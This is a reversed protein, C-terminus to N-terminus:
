KPSEELKYVIMKVQIIQDKSITNSTANAHELNNRLQRFQHLIQAQNITIHQDKELTKIMDILDGKLLFKSKCLYTLKVYLNTIASLFDGSNIKNEVLKETIAKPNGFANKEEVFLNHLQTYCSDLKILSDYLIEDISSLFDLDKVQKHYKQYLVIFGDRNVVEKSSYPHEISAGTHENLAAILDNTSMLLAALKSKSQYKSLLSPLIEKFYVFLDQYGFDLSELTDFLDVQNNSRITPSNMIIDLLVINSLKNVKIVWNSIVLRSALNNIDSTMLYTKMCEFGIKKIYEIIIPEGSSLERIKGLQVINSELDRGLWSHIKDNVVELCNGFKCLSILKKFSYEANDNFEIFSFNDILSRIVHDILPKQIKRELLLTIRIEGFIPNNAIVNAPIFVSATESAYIKLFISNPSLENLLKSSTFCMTYNTTNITGNLVDIVSKQATKIKIDEPIHIGDIPLESSMSTYHRTEFPFKFKNKALIGETIMKNNYFMEFFSKLRLDEFEFNISGETEICISIPYTIYQNETSLIQTSLIIEEKKIDIGNSKKTNLFEEIAYSEPVSFQDFFSNSLISGEIFGYKRDILLSLQKYMPTFYVTEKKEINIDTPILEEQFVKRGKPTFSFLDFSYEEFYASNYTYATKLIGLKILKQLEDSFLEHLDKPVGFQVLLDSIKIKKDSVENLLVLLFYSIGTPKKVKTYTILTNIKVLPFAFSTEFRHM